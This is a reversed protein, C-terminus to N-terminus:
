GTPQLTGTITTTYGESGAVTKTCDFQWSRAAPDWEGLLVDGLVGVNTSPDAGTPYCASRDLPDGSGVFEAVFGNDTTPDPPCANTGAVYADVMLHLTGGIDNGNVLLTQSRGGTTWENLGGAGSYAQACGYGDAGAGSFQFTSAGDQTYVPKSYDTAGNTLAIHLTGSQTRDYDITNTGDSTSHVSWTLTGSWGTPPSQCTGAARVQARLAPPLAVPQSCDQYWRITQDYSTSPQVAKKFMQAGMASFTDILNLPNAFDTLSSLLKKVRVTWLLKNSSSGKKRITTFPLISKILNEILPVDFESADLSATIPVSLDVATMHTNQPSHPNVQLNMGSVRETTDNPISSLATELQNQHLWKTTAMNIRDGMYSPDVNWKVAWSSMADAQDSMPADLLDGMGWTRMCNAMLGQWTSTATQEQELEKVADPNLGVFAFDQTDVQGSVSRWAPDNAAYGRITISRYFQMLKQIRQYMAAALFFREVEDKSVEAALGTGYNHMATLADKLESSVTGNIADADFDWISDKVIPALKELEGGLAECGGPTNRRVPTPGSPQTAVRSVAPPPSQRLVGAALVQSELESLRLQAPDYSADALDIGHRSAMAALFLPNFSRPDLPATAAETVWTSLMERLALGPAVGDAFPAKATKLAQAVDTLTLGHTGYPLRADFALQVPDSDFANTRSSPDTAPTEVAGASNVISMGSLTLVERTPAVADHLTSGDLIADALAQIHAPVTTLAAAGRPVSQVAVAVLLLAVASTILRTIASKM